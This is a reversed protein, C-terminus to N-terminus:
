EPFLQRVATDVWSFFRSIGYLLMNASVSECISAQPKVLDRVPLRRLMRGKTSIQIQRESQDQQGLVDGWQLPDRDGGRSSQAGSDVSSSRILSQRRANASQRQKILRNRISSHSVPCRPSYFPYGVVKPLPRHNVSQLLQGVPNCGCLHFDGLPCHRYEYPRVRVRRTGALSTAPPGPAKTTCMTLKSSTASAIVFLSM